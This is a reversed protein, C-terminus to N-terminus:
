RNSASRHSPIRGMYHDQQADVIESRIASMEKDMEFAAESANKLRLTVDAPLQGKYKYSLSHEITSWFNMGLTRIQIECRVVKTGRVTFVPYNIIIHYSRYGSEKQHDVYNTEETIDMDKRERILQVVTDIDEVFQCIIRIGAIDSMRDELNEIDINNKRMKEQISEVTKVRGQVQEIPSYKGTSRYELLMNEFKVILEQVAQNYPLLFSDWEKEM